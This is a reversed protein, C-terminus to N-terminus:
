PTPEAGDCVFLEQIVRAQSLRIERPVSDDSLAAIVTGFLRAEIADMLDALIARGDPGLARLKADEKRTVQSRM